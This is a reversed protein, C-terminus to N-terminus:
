NLASSTLLLLLNLNNLLTEVLPVLMVAWNMLLLAMELLTPYKEVTETEVCLKLFQM